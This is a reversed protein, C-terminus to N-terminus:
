IFIGQKNIFGQIGILWLHPRSSGCDVKLSFMPEKTKKVISTITNIKTLLKREKKWVCRGGGLWVGAVFRGCM